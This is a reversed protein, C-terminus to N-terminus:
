QSDFSEMSWGPLAADHYLSTRPDIVLQVDKRDYNALVRISLTQKDFPLSRLDLPASLRGFYRQMYEVVGNEDIDILDISAAQLTRQNIFHVEPHWVDEIELVCDALSQGLKSAALREDTWRASFFFDITFEEAREDLDVVDLILFGIQVVLPEVGEGPRALTLATPIECARADQLCLSSAACALAAALSHSKMQLIMRNHVHSPFIGDRIPDM